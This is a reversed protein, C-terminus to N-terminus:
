KRAAISRIVTHKGRGMYKFDRCSHQPQGIHRSIEHIKVRWSRDERSDCDSRREWKELSEHGALGGVWGSGLKIFSCSSGKVTSSFPLGELAGFRRVTFGFAEGAFAETSGAVGFTALGRARLFTTFASGTSSIADLGAESCATGAMTGAASIEGAGGAGMAMAGSTGEGAGTGGAM